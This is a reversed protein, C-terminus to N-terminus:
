LFASNLYQVFSFYEEGQLGKRDFWSSILPNRWGSNTRAFSGMIKKEKNKIGNEDGKTGWENKLRAEPLTPMWGGLSVRVNLLFDRPKGPPESPLSVVQLKPFKPKIGPNPLCGPSPFLM